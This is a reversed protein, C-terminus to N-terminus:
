TTQDTIRTLRLASAVRHLDPIVVTKPVPKAGTAGAAGTAERAPEAHFASFTGAKKPRPAPQREAESPSRFSKAKTSSRGPPSQRAGLGGLM